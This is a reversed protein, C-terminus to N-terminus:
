QEQLAKRAPGRVDKGATRESDKVLLSVPFHDLLTAIRVAVGGEYVQGCMRDTWRGEPLQLTTGSWNNGLKHPLRPAVAIIDAARRYAVVHDAKSGEVKLPTYSGEGDFSVPRELRLQLAQHIVWLKPSGDSFHELAYRAAEGPSRGALESLMSRRLDYDVPRRNDPDVLSHDWLEGGQYLDPVGPSTCKLLTQALSNIRGDRSIREVFSQLDACFSEDKLIADIFNNLASEYAQNNNLWSTERKAERMAKQMYERLREATIPWAGILTQYLFYETNPDPYTGTRYKANM